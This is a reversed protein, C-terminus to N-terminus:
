YFIHHQNEKKMLLFEFIFNMNLTTDGKYIRLNVYPDRIIADKFEMKFPKSFPAINKIKAKLSSVAILTSDLQDYLKVDILEINTFTAIKIAGIELKANLNNQWWNEFIQILFKQTTPTKLTIILIAPVACIIWALVLITNKFIKKGKHLSMIILKITIPISVLQSSVETAIKIIVSKNAIYCCGLIHHMRRRYYWLQCRSSM